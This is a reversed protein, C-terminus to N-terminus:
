FNTLNQRQVLIWSIKAFNSDDLIPMIFDDRVQMEGLTTAVIEDDEGNIEAHCFKLSAPPVFENKGESNSWGEELTVEIDQEIEPCLELNEQCVYRFPREVGFAQRTDELDPIVHYFPMTNVDGEIDQLGDWQSVDTKPYPDWAIIV